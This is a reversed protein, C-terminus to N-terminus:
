PVASIQCQAWLDFNVYCRQEPVFHAVFIDPTISLKFNAMVRVHVVRYTMNNRYECENLENREKKPLFFPCLYFGKEEVVM